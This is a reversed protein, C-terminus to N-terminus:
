YEEIEEKMTKADEIAKKERELGDQHEQDFKDIKEKAKELEEKLEKNVIKMEENEKSYLMNRSLIDEWFM